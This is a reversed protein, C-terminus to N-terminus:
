IISIFVIELLLFFFASKSPVFKTKVTIGSLKTAMFVKISNFNGDDTYIKM